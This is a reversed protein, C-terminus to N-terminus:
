RFYGTVDIIVDVHGTPQDSRVVIESETGLNVVANNARTQGAGYNIASALPLPSDRVYHRLDGQSDAGTVTINVAAATADAPVGCRGGITFLRDGQAPLSPGQLGPDASRTDAVRCPPVTHFRAPAASGSAPRVYLDDFFAETAQDGAFSAAWLFILVSHTDAPIVVEAALAEWPGSSEQVTFNVDASFTTSGCAPGPQFSMFLQVLPSGVPRYASGGFYYLALPTVPVCQTLAQFQYAGEPENFLHASGSIASAYADRASWTALQGSSSHSWGALDSQFRPNTLLNQASASGAALGLAM